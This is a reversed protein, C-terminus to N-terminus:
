VLLWDALRGNGIHIFAGLLSLLGPTGLRTGRPGSVIIALSANQGNGVKLVFCSKWSFLRIGVKSKTADNRRVNQKCTVNAVPALSTEVLNTVPHLHKKLEQSRTIQLKKAGM